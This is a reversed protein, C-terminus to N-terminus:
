YMHNVDPRSDHPNEKFEKIKNLVFEYFEINQEDRQHYEELLREIERM